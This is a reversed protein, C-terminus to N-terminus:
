GKSKPLVRSALYKRYCDESCFFLKKGRVSVAFSQSKPIYCECVPDRVLDEGPDADPIRRRPSGIARRVVWYITVLLILYLILRFM